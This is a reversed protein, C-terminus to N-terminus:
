LAEAELLRTVTKHPADTILKALRFKSLTHNGNLKLAERYHLEADVMEGLEHHANGLNSHAIAYDPKVKM